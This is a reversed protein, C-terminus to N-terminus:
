IRYTFEDARSSFVTWGLVLTLTAIVISGLLIEGSPLKGEYVPQRFIEVLYYM